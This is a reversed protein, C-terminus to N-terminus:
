VAVVAAKLLRKTTSPISVRYIVFGLLL